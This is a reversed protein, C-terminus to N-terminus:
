NPCAQSNYCKWGAATGNTNIMLCNQTLNFVMMGERLQAAPIAAVEADTLRNVVFGKTKSELVTWAGKRVMPWNGNAAGARGLATIGHNTDLVTGSTQGPKYCLLTSSTNASENCMCNDDKSITAVVRSGTSCASASFSFTETATAGAALPAALTHTGLIQGTSVGADTACYFTIKVPANSSITSTNQVTIKGSYMNGSFNGSISNISYDPKVVSYNYTYNGTETLISSCANGTTSCVVGASRDYSLIEISAPGCAVTSGSTKTFNVTYLMQSGSAMGTPVSLKVFRTGSADTFVNVFTPCYAGTCSLSAYDFGPPIQIHIEGTDSSPGTGVVTQKIGLPIEAACNDFVTAASTIETSIKYSAEAGNIKIAPSVLTSSDGAAPQGCQSNGKVTLRVTSGSKYECSTTVDFKINMQRKNADGGDTLTGPLGTTPYQPHTTLDLTLTTGSVTTTVPAWNGSNLPYEALLTGSTITMGDPLKILLKNNFTNGAGASIIRYAFSLTDCMNVNGVPESIKQIQVAGNQPVFTIDASTPGCTYTSPDTPFSSCNWGGLVKFTTTTCSTYKFDIRYSNSAGTTLGATSLQYWVGGSYQIPTLVTNTAVDVVQQISVGNVNPIALWTYPATSTGTSTMKVTVSEVPKIAQITGSTNSLSVAPRTTETYTLSRNSADISAPPMSGNLKYHYYQPIYEVTTLLQEGSAPTACTPKLYVYFVLNYVNAVPINYGMEPINYTYTKAGTQTMKSTIDVLSGSPNLNRMEVKVLDFSPPVTLSYKLPLFGPRVENQYVLGSTDFRYTLYNTGNGASLVNCATAALAVGSNFRDEYQATALYLEPVFFNCYLQTGSTDQNFFYIKNGTQVDHTPLNNSIVKYTAKTEFKDGPQLTTGGLVSTLNWIITQVTPTSTVTAASAPLTGSYMISGGRLIQVAINKALLKDDTGTTKNISFSLYLNDSVTNQTGNASVEIDDLYLAKSLDYASINNRSQLTNLSSDTWGLSNDAREVKMFTISPGSNCPGPCFANGITLNGCYVEPNCTTCGTAINDLRKLKFPISIAGGTGCTYVLDITFYGMSQDPSTVTVVNGNVSVAPSLATSSFNDPYQGKYWKANGNTGSVSIGQPLTIEYVYRTNPNDLAYAMQFYGVSFRSNFPIQDYVNAPAYSKSSLAAVQVAGLNFSGTAPTQKTSTQVTSSCMTTYKMDSYIGYTEQHLTSTACSYLGCNENVTFSVTLTAGGPLDDYYGDGDLDSLGGAGDPDAALKNNLDLNLIQASGSGTFTIGVPVGNIKANSFQHYNFYWGELVSNNGGGLRALINYMGAANIDGTGGNTFQANITFPTCSDKFDAGRTFSLKNFNPTGTAMTVSGKGTSEQCWGTRESSCGWGVAYNTTAGCVKIKYTETLTLSESNCLDGGPLSSAPITYSYVTGNITPTLIIPTPLNVGNQQTIELKEALIGNAPYDINIYINKACGNGGNTVKFTRTYSTNLVANTQSAPQTFSLVPALLNYEASTKTSTNAGPITASVNDFFDGGGIDFSRAACTATRGIEFTVTSGVAIIAPNIKFKPANATGGNETVTLGANSSILKISGPVYEIGTALKVTIDAGGTSAALADLKVQLPASDNCVTIPQLSSPFSIIFSEQAFATSFLALFFATLFNRFQTFKKQM